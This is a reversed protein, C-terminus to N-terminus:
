RSAAVDVTTRDPRRFTVRGRVIATVTFDGIRDGVHVIRTRDSGPLQVTAFGAGDVSIATGLVVPLVEPPAPAEDDATAFEENPMLYRAAPPTRTVSFINHEAVATPDVQVVPRDLAGLTRGIPAPPASVPTTPQVQIARVVSAVLL